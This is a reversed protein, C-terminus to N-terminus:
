GQEGMLRLKDNNCDTVAANIGHRQRLLDGVTTARAAEDYLVIVICKAICRGM